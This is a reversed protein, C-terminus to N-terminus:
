ERELASARECSVLGLLLFSLQYAVGDAFEIPQLWSGMCLVFLLAYLIPRGSRFRFIIIFLFSLVLFAPLWGHFLISDIIFNHAWYGSPLGSYEGLWVVDGSSIVKAAVSWLDVRGNLPNSGIFQYLSYRFLAGKGVILLPLVAAILAVAACFTRNRTLWSLKRGIASLQYSHFLNKYAFAFLLLSFSLLSLIGRFVPLGFALFSIYVFMFVLVPWRIKPLYDLCFVVLLCGIVYLNELPRLESAPVGISGIALFTSSLTASLGILMVVFLERRLRLSILRGCAFLLFINVPLVIDARENFLVDLDLRPMGIVVQVILCVVYLGLFAFEPEILKSFSNSNACVVYIAVLLILFYSGPFRAGVCIAAFYGILWLSSSLM